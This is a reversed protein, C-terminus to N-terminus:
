LYPKLLMVTVNRVQQFHRMELHSQCGRYRYTRGIPGRKPQYHAVLADLQGELDKVLHPLNVLARDDVNVYSPNALRYQVSKDATKARERDAPRGSRLAIM